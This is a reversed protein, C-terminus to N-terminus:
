NCTPCSSRRANSCCEMSCYTGISSSSTSSQCPALKGLHTYHTGSFSKGCWSCTKSGYSSSSSSSSSSSNDNSSESAALDKYKIIKEDIYNEVNRKVNEEFGRRTLLDIYKTNEVKLEEYNELLESYNKYSYDKEKAIVNDIKSNLSVRESELDEPLKKNCSNLILILLTLFLLKGFNYILNKKM